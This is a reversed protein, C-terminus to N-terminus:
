QSSARRLLREILTMRLLTSPDTITGFTSAEVESLMVHTFIAENRAIVNPALIAENRAIVAFDIM